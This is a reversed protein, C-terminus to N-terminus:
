CNVTETVLFPALLSLIVNIWKEEASLLSCSFHQMWCLGTFCCLINSSSAPFASNQTHLLSPRCTVGEQLWSPGLVLLCGPEGCLQVACQGFYQPWWSCWLIDWHELLAFHLGEPCGNCCEFREKSSNWCGAPCLVSCGPRFETNVKYQSCFTQRSRGSAGELRFVRGFHYLFLVALFNDMKMRFFFFFFILKVKIKGLFYNDAFTTCVKVSVINLIDKRM